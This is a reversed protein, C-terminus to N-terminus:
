LQFKFYGKMRKIRELYQMTSDVGNIGPGSLNWCTNSDSSVEDVSLSYPTSLLEFDNGPWQGRDGICLCNESLGLEKAMSLCHPFINLKSVEPRKIIDMSHSSELVHFESSNSKMIVQLVLDRTRKWENIDDIQISLQKPRLEINLKQRFDYSTLLEYLNKLGKDFGTEKNPIDDEALRGIDSGNYYGIIIQDWFEPDVASQIEKRVSKGRGTVIGIVFGGKLFLNLQVKVQNSLPKFRDKQTCLTGDYDFVLVGFKTDSLNKTFTRYAEIWFSQQEPKLSQIANARSKKLIANSIDVDINEKSKAQSILSSYRLNYLKRGFDPVGPKGPDIKRQRGISEILKFSKILLDLSSTATRLNSRLILKPISAPILELTKAALLEEYPTVIAIISSNKARKAFWHHRGHAFNRYDAINANGLAAETFKSEIDIAVPHGWGGFLITTTSDISLKKTFSDIEKEEKTTTQTELQSEEQFFAKLLLTFYAILSNTALFGDKGAPIVYELGKSISYQNALRTLPTDRRMCITTISVPNQDIAAKFSFLIDNNKGGASIFILRSHRLTNRSSHLELPTVAKSVIGFHQFLSVAFYCASLSGGSGVVLIPTVESKLSELTTVDQSRAWLHTDNLLELEKSFPKGM